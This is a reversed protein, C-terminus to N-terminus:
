RPHSKKRSESPTNHMAWQLSGIISQYKQVGNADLLEFDDLEPHNGPELPSKIKTQLKEDKFLKSYNAIVKEIIEYAGHM